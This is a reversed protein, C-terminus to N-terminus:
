YPKLSIEDGTLNIKEIRTSQHNPNYGAQKWGNETGGHRRANLRPNVTNFRDKKDYSM